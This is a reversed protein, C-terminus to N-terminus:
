RISVVGPTVWYLHKIKSGRTSIKKRKISDLDKDYDLHWGFLCFGTSFEHTSVLVLCSIFVNFFTVWSFHSLLLCPLPKMGVQTHFPWQKQPSNPPLIQTRATLHPWLSLSSNSRWPALPSCWSTSSQFRLLNPSLLRGPPVSSQTIKLRKRDLLVIYCQIWKLRHRQATIYLTVSHKSLDSRVFNLLEKEISSSCM